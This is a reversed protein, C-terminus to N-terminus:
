LFSEQFAPPMHSHPCRRPHVTTLLHSIYKQLRFGVCPLSCCPFLGTSTTEFSAILWTKGTEVTRGSDLTFAPSLTYGVSTKRGDFILPNGFSLTAMHWCIRVNDCSRNSFKTEVKCSTSKRSSILSANRCYKSSYVKNSRFIGVSQKFCEIPM